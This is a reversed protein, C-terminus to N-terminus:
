SPSIKEGASIKAIRDTWERTPVSVPTLQTVVAARNKHGARATQQASGSEGPKAGGAADVCQGSLRWLLGEWLIGRKNHVVQLSSIIKWQRFCGFCDYM